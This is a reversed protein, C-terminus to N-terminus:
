LLRTRSIVGVRTVLATRLRSPPRRPRLRYVRVQDGPPLSRRAATTAPASATRPAPAAAAYQPPHCGPGSLSVPRRALGVGAGAGTALVGATVTGAADAEAAGGDGATGAGAKGTGTDGGVDGGM